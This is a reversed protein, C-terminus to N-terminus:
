FISCLLVICQVQYSLHLDLANNFIRDIIEVADCKVDRMDLVAAVDTTSSSM